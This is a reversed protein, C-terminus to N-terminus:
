RKKGTLFITKITKSKKIKKKKGNEVGISIQIIYALGNQIDECNNCKKLVMAKDKLFGIKDNVM